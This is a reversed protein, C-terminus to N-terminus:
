YKIGRIKIVLKDNTDDSQVSPTPSSVAFFPSKQFVLNLCTHNYKHLTLCTNIMQLKVKKLGMIKMKWLM